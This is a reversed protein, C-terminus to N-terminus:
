RTIPLSGDEAHERQHHKYNRDSPTLLNLRLTFLFYDFKFNTLFEPTFTSRKRHNTVYMVQTLVVFVLATNLVDHHM